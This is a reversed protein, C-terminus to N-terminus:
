TEGVGGMGGAKGSFVKNRCVVPGQMLDHIEVCGSNESPVQISGGPSGQM